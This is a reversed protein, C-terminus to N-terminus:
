IKKANETEKSSCIAKFHGEEEQNQETKMKPLVLYASSSRHILGSIKNWSPSIVVTAWLDM